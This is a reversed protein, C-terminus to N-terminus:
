ASRAPVADTGSYIVEITDPANAVGQTIRVPALTLNFERVPDTGSDYVLLRCGLIDVSNLGFGAVRLDRQMTYMAISGNFTADGGGTAARRYAESSALTQYVAMTVVLSVVMAILVEILTMGRSARLGRLM